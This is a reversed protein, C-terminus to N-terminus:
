KENAIEEGLEDLEDDDIELATNAAKVSSGNKGQDTNIRMEVWKVKADNIANRV